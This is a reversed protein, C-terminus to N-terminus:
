IIGGTGSVSMRAGQVTSLRTVVSKIQFVRRNGVTRGVLMIITVIADIVVLGLPDPSSSIQDFRRLTEAGKPPTTAELRRIIAANGKVLQPPHGPRRPQCCRQQRYGRCYQWFSAYM